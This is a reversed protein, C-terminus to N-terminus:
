PPLIPRRHKALERAVPRPLLRWIARRVRGPLVTSAIRRPSGLRVRWEQGDTVTAQRVGTLISWLRIEATSREKFGASKRVCVFVGPYLQDAILDVIEMDAFIARMDDLEYRWYDFPAAHFPYGQSRTTVILTGNAAVVRKLNSIATRWDRVHEVLEAAIVVDFSDSGFREVLRSVDSVVDVGPGDTIDVGVYSAPGLPLIVDRPTAEGGPLAGVELVRSGQVLSKPLNASLFRLAPACVV